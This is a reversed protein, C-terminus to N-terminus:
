GEVNLVKLVYPEVGSGSMYKPYPYYTYPSEANHKEIYKAVEKLAGEEDFARFIGTVFVTDGGGTTVQYTCEYLYTPKRWLYKDWSTRM